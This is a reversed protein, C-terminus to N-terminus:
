RSDAPALLPEDLAIDDAVPRRENLPTQRKILWLRNTQGIREFSAEDVSSRILFARAEPSVTTGAFSDVSPSRASPRPWPWAPGEDSVCVGCGEAWIEVELRLDGNTGNAAAFVCAEIVAVELEAAAVEGLGGALCAGRVGAGIVSVVALAKPASMTLITPRAVAESSFLEEAPSERAPIDVVAGGSARPATVEVGCAECPSDAARTAGCAACAEGRQTDKVAAAIEDVSTAGLRVKEIAAEMLTRTGQRRALGLVELESAGAHILRKLETTNRLIEYIGLRGRCGTNRCAQCGAGRRPLADGLAKRRIAAPAGADLPAPTACQDCVRRVLRQAIVALLTSALLEREIGLKTLRTLAGVADNTHLTSLVLHGTQAAQVAIEATERDRIEGILIVDPDQRLISRLAAAFTMGQRENVETQTIGPLRYEIPNEVTVINM